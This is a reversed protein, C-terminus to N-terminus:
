VMPCVLYAVLRAEVAQGISNSPKHSTNSYKALGKYGFFVCSWFFFNLSPPLNAKTNVSLSVSRCTIIPMFSSRTAARRHNLFLTVPLCQEAVVQDSQDNRVVRREKIVVERNTSSVIFTISASVIATALITAIIKM